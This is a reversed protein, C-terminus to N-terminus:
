WMRIIVRSIQTLYHLSLLSHNGQAYSDQAGNSGTSTADAKAYAPRFSDQNQITGDQKAGFFRDAVKDLIGELMKGIPEINTVILETIDKDGSEGNSGFLGRVVKKKIDPDQLAFSALQMEPTLPAPNPQQSQPEAIGMAERFEKMMKFSDRMQKLPDVYQQQAQAPMQVIVQGPNQPDPVSVVM